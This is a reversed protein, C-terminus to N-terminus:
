PKLEIYEIIIKKPYDYIQDDLKKVLESLVRIEFTLTVCVLPYTVTVKWPM